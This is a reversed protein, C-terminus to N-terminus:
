VGIWAGRGGEEGEGEVRANAIQDRAESPCIPTFGFSCACLKESSSHLLIRRLPETCHM